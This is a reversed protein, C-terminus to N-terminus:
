GNQRRGASRLADLRDPDVKDVEEVFHALALDGFDTVLSSVMRRSVERLFSERSMTASYHYARGTKEHRLFGKGALRTMVTLVTTYALDHDQQLRRLVERVPSPGNAWVDEMVARELRGLVRNLGCTMEDPTEAPPAAGDSKPM